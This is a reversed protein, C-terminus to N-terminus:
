DELSYTVKIKYTYTSNSSNDKRTVRNKYSYTTDEINLVKGVNMGVEKALSEAKRRADKLADKALKFDDVNTNDYVYEYRSVSVGKLGMRYIQKAEEKDKVVLKYSTKKGNRYGNSPPFVEALDNKSYGLNAITALLDSTGEEISKGRIKQYENEKVETVDITLELGKSEYKQKAQGLITIYKDTIEQGIISTSCLAILCIACVLHLSKM